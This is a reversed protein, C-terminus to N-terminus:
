KRSRKRPSKLSSEPSGMRLLGANLRRLFEQNADITEETIRGTRYEYTFERLTRETLGQAWKMRDILYQAAIDDASLSDEPSRSEPYPYTSPVRRHPTIM